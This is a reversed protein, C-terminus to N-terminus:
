LQIEHLRIAGIDDACVSLFYREGAIEAEKTLTQANQTDIRFAPLPCNGLKKFISEKQTWKEFLYEAKRETKKYAEYEQETLFKKALGQLKTPQFYEIDVGVPQTSLAVAVANKSHSLSFECLSCKWKGSQTKTFEANQTFTCALAHMLLKWVFYKERKTKESKCARIEQERAPPFVPSVTANQPIEAIYIDITNMM